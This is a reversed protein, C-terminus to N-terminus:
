IVAFVIAKLSDCAAATDRIHTLKLCSNMTLWVSFLISLANMLWAQEIGVMTESNDRQCAPYCIWRSFTEIEANSMALAVVHTHLQQNQEMQTMHKETCEFKTCVFVHSQFGM